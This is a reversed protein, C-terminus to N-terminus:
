GAKAAVVYESRESAFETRPARKEALLGPMALISAATVAASSKLFRRRSDSSDTM